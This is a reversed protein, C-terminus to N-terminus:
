TSAKEGSGGGKVAFAKGLGGLIDVAGNFFGMSEATGGADTERDANFQGMAESAQGQKLAFAAAAREYNAAAKEQATQSSISTEAAERNIDAIETVHGELAATTPSTLDAGGAARTVSINGLTKTLNERASADTLSAQLKGFEAATENGEAAIIDQQSQIGFQAKERQGQYLYNTARTDHQQKASEGGLIDSGAKMGLSAVSSGVAMATVPDAGM